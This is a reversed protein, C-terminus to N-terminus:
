LEVACLQMGLQEPSVPTGLVAWYDPFFLYENERVNAKAAQWSNARWKWM